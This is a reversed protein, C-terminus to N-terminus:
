TARSRAGGPPPRTSQLSSRRRAFPHWRPTAVHRRSHAACAHARAARRRRGCRAGYHACSGRRSCRRATLSISAAVSSRRVSETPSARERRATGSAGAAGVEAAAAVAREVADDQAPAASVMLMGSERLWVDEGRSELIRARRSRNAGGSTRASACAGARAAAASRRAGGLVRAPLRRQAAARGQM